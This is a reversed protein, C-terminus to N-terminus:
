VEFTLQRLKRSLNMVQSDYNMIWLDCSRKTCFENQAFNRRLFAKTRITNVAFAFRPIALTIFASTRNCLIFLFLGFVRVNTLFTPVFFTRTQPASSMHDSNVKWELKLDPLFDSFYHRRAVRQSRSEFHELLSKSTTEIKKISFKSYSFSTSRTKVFKLRFYYCPCWIDAFLLRFDRFQVFAWIRRYRM